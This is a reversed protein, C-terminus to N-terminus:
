RFAGAHEIVWERFSRAPAGIIEEVTSSVLEPEGVLRAWYQLAGDVVAPPLRALLQPRMAEPSIEEFRLPHGIAEGIIRVQEVQTLSQPGTLLYKAASHGDSTLASVAVAAIDREHILARACAGYVWRVVGDARIQPAWWLTNTAFGGPRLFTWELGSQEILHEIDAHLANIPDLQQGLDDRVGLSSLFVLRRAHKRIVDLVAPAFAATLGPWLLFVADVGNLCAALSDSASLDGRVVDVGDPLGVSAPNRALARVIAGTHLLQSVVHRGVNGTAGTVLIVSHGSKGRVNEIAKHDTTSM